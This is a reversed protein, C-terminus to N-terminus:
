PRAGALTRLRATGSVGKFDSGLSCPAARAGVSQCAPVRAMDIAQPEVLSARKDQWGDTTTHRWCRVVMTAKRRRAMGRRGVSGMM